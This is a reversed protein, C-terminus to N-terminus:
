SQILGGCAPEHFQGILVSCHSAAQTRGGEEVTEICPQSDIGISGMLEICNCFCENHPLVIDSLGGLNIQGEHLHFSQLSESKQESGKRVMCAVERHM